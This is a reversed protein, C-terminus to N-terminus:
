DREFVEILRRPAELRHTRRALSISSLVARIKIRTRRSRRERRANRNSAVSHIPQGLASPSLESEALRTWSQLTVEQACRFAGVGGPTECYALLMEASGARRKDAGHAIIERRAVRLAM